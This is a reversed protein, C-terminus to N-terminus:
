RAGGMLSLRRAATAFGTASDESKAPNRSVRRSSKCLSVGRSAEQATRSLIGERYLPAPGFGAGPMFNRMM